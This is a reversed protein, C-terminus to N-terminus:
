RGTLLWRLRGALNRNMVASVDVATKAVRKLDARISLEAEIRMAQEKEALQQIFACTDKYRDETHGRAEALATAVNIVSADHMKHMLEDARRNAAELARHIETAVAASIAM